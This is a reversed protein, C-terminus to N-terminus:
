QAAGEDSGFDVVDDTAQPAKTRKAFVEFDHMSKGGQLKIKAGAITGWVVYVAGQAIEPLFKELLKTKPGYNVNVFDGPAAEVVEADEGSGMRVKCPADVQVQFFQQTGEKRLATKMEFMGELKGSLTNGITSMDFWGANAVSGLRQFGDPAKVTQQQQQAKAM